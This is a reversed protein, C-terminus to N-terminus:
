RSRSLALLIYTPEALIGDGLNSLNRAMRQERVTLGEVVKKMRAAAASFGAIYDAVFRGSASNSLDRQHESIQDMFFTM